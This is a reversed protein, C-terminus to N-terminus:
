HSPTLMSLPLLEIKRKRHSYRAQHFEFDRRSEGRCKEDVIRMIKIKDEFSTKIGFIIGVLDSFKYKLKRSEVEEFNLGMSSLIIRYEEEHKWEESKTSYREQFRRWYADRWGSTERLIDSAVASLKGGVGTYWFALKYRPINGLSQFFDVEPYDATYNIKEFVHPVFSFQTVSEGGLSGSLGTAQYLDLKPQGEPTASTRYKLCAGRHGDGYAGWM